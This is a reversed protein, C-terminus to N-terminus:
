KRIYKEDTGFEESVFREATMHLDYKERLAALRAMMPSAHHADISAQDKIAVSLISNKVFSACTRLLLADEKGDSLEPFEVVTVCLKELLRAIEFKEKFTLDNENECLKAAVRLKEM